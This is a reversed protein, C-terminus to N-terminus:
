ENFLTPRLRNNESDIVFAKYYFFDTNVKICGYCPIGWLVSSIGSLILFSFVLLWRQKNNRQISKGLHYRWAVSFLCDHEPQGQSYWRQEYVLLTSCRTINATHPNKMYLSTQTRHMHLPFLSPSFSINLFFNCYFNSFFFINLDWQHM